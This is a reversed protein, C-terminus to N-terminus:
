CRSAGRVYGYRLYSRHSADPRASAPLVVHPFGTRGSGPPPAAKGAAGRMFPSPGAGIDSSCFLDGTRTLLLSGTPAARAPFRAKSGDAPQTPLRLLHGTVVVGPM